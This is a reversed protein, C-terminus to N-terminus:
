DNRIKENNVGRIKYIRLVGKTYKPTKLWSRIKNLYLSDM